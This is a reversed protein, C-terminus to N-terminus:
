GFVARLPLWSGIIARGEGDLDRRDGGPAAKPWAMLPPPRLIVGREEQAPPPRSVGAVSGRGARSARMGAAKM